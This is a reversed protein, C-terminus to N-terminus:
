VIPHDSLSSPQSSLDYLLRDQGAYVVGLKKHVIDLSYIDYPQERSGYQKGNLHRRHRVLSLDKPIYQDWLPTIYRDWVEREVRYAGYGAIYCSFPREAWLKGRKRTQTAKKKQPHVCGRKLKYPKRERLSKRKKEQREARKEEARRTAGSLKVVGLQELALLGVGDKGAVARVPARLADISDDLRILGLRTDLEEMEEITLLANIKVKETM